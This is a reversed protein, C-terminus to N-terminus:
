WEALVDAGGSSSLVVRWPVTYLVHRGQTVVTVPVVAVEAPCGGAKAEGGWPLSAIALACPPEGPLCLPPRWLFEDRKVCDLTPCFPLVPLEKEINGSVYLQVVSSALCEVCDPFLVASPMCPPSSAGPIVASGRAAPTSSRPQEPSRSCGRKLPGVHLLSHSSGRSGLQQAWPQQSVPLCFPAPIHLHSASTEIELSESNGPLDGWRAQVCVSALLHAASM